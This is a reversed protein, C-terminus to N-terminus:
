GFSLHEQLKIVGMDDLVVVEKKVLLSSISCSSPRLHINHEDHLISGIAIEEGAEFFRVLLLPMNGLVGYAFPKELEAFCQIVYGALPDDVSVDFKGVNQYIAVVELKCVEADGLDHMSLESLGDDPSRRAIHRRLEQVLLLVIGLGVDPGQATHYPLERAAAQQTLVLSNKSSLHEFIRPPQPLHPALHLLCVSTGLQNLEDFLHELRLDSIPTCRSVDKFRAHEPVLLLPLLFYVRHSSTHLGEAQCPSRSVRVYCWPLLLRDLVLDDVPLHLSIERSHFAVLDARGEGRRREGGRKEKEKEEERMEQM